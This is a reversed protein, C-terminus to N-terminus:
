WRLGLRQVGCFHEKVEYSFNGCNFFDAPVSGTVGAIFVQAGGSLSM